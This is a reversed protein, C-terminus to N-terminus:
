RASIKWDRWVVEATDEALEAKVGALLLVASGRREVRWADGARDVQQVVSAPSPSMTPKSKALHAVVKGCAAEAEKADTETDWTSLIVVTPKAEGVAYAVVRDGGWGAAAREADAESMASGFLVRWTLEGFVTRQIESGLAALPALKPTTIAVPLEHALYKEPHFIQETSVPPSRWVRDVAAWKGSRRIAAVFQLGSMYPFLLAQQVMKPAAAVMPAAGLGVQMMQSSLQGVLEGLQDTPLGMSQAQFELMAMTGDGEVLAQGAAQRDADDKLPKTFRKLDFHQDQLAHTIEHAMTPRQLMLPLWDAIYLKATLPDYFGAVQEMLLDLLLKEYDTDEPLLGLRKWMRTEAAIEAPTFEQDFLHKIKVGIEARSLVGRAIPHKVPLARLAAVERIIEDAAALLAAKSAPADPAPSPIARAVAPALLCALCVLSTTRFMARM